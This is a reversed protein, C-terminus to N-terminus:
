KRQLDSFVELLNEIDSASIGSNLSIRLRSEKVTPPRIARIDFGKEKLVSSYQLSTKEDGLLVPVIQSRSDATRFGLERLGKRLLDANSHILNRQVEMKEALRVSRGACFAVAPIPATSFIFTRMANILYEKLDRRCSIFAGELGLAKGCTFVRFDADSQCSLGRGNEGYVGLAHAEDLVLTFNFEKKLAAIEDKRYFDGEMSFITESIVTTERDRYKLLLDRLQNSDNHRYFRVEAGSLRIGDLISAHNLRDCLFVPSSKGLLDALGLNALFGNALFLSDETGVYRSFIEEAETFVDRHGRLLRSAGSGLGDKELYEAFAAKLEPSESLKLYDNSSFDTGKPVSVSRFRNKERIEQMASQIFQETKEHM